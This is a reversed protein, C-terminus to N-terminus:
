YDPNMTLSFNGLYHKLFDLSFVKKTSLDSTNLVFLKPQFNLIGNAFMIGPSYFVVNNEDGIPYSTLLNM